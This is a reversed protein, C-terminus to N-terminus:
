WSEGSERLELLTDENVRVDGGPTTSLVKYSVDLGASPDMDYVAKFSVKGLHGTSVVRGSLAEYKVRRIISSLYQQKKRAWEEVAKKRKEFEIESEGAKKNTWETDDWEFRYTLDLLEWNLKSLEITVVKADQVPLPNEYLKPYKGSNVKKLFDIRSEGSKLRFVEQGIKTM